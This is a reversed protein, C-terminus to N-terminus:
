HLNLRVRLLNVCIYDPLDQRLVLISVLLLGRSSYKIEFLLVRGFNNQCPQASDIDNTFLNLLFTQFMFIHTQM